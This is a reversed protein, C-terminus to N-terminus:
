IGKNLRQMSLRVFEDMDYSPKDSQSQDSEIKAAKGAWLVDYRGELVHVAHNVDIIWDFDAHWGYGDEGKLVPSQEAKKFLSIINQKNPVERLLLSIQRRRPLTLTLATGGSLSPCTHLFLNAVDEASISKEMASSPPPVYVGAHTEERISIISGPEIIQEPVYAGARTEEGEEKRINRINKYIPLNTSRTNAPTNDTHQNQTDPTNNVTNTPTNSSSDGNSEFTTNIGNLCEKRDASRDTPNGALKKPNTQGKEVCRGAAKQPPVVNVLSGQYKEFNTITILHQRNTSKMIIEGTKQLHTLATRVSKISLGLSIALEPLTTSCEGRHLTAQGIEDCYTASLLLHVFVAKTNTDAYWQWGIIQRFFKIYGAADPSQYRDYNLITITTGQAGSDLSIEGSLKLHELATRVSQLSIKLTDSMSRISTNLQGRKFQHGYFAYPQRAAMLLCHLWVAKTANEKYWEWQLFRRSLKIFGNM